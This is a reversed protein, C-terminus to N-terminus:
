QKNITASTGAAGPYHVNEERSSGFLPYIKRDAVSGSETYVQARTLGMERLRRLSINLLHKGLGKRQHMPLTCIGTLLNQDTWHEVAIGSVAVIRGLSTAVIYECGSTGITTVIRQTMRAAIEDWIERWALDSAYAALVVTIIEEVNSAAAAEFRYGRCPITTVQLSM